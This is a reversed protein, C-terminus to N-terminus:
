KMTNLIDKIKGLNAGIVEDLKVGDKYAKFTPMASIAEQAAITEGQDVDVKFFIVGPFSAPLKEFDPAIAKCPGCWTAFFDVMVFKNTKLIQQFEALDNVIKMQIQLNQKQKNILQNKNQGM